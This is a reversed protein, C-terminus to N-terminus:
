GGWTASSGDCEVCQASMERERDIQIEGYWLTSRVTCSYRESARSQLSRPSPLLRWVPLVHTNVLLLGCRLGTKATRMSQREGNAHKAVWATDM